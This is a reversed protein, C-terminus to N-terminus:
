PSLLWHTGIRVQLNAELFEILGPGYKNLFYVFGITREQPQGNPFAQSQARHFQRRLVGDKRKTAQIIKNHLKKLDTEMRAATSRASGELTPDIEVVTTALIDMQEAVLSSTTAIASEVTPPLQTVLLRNLVSEDRASLTEFQIQHRSLFRMTSSDLLTISPRTHVLPMPIGFEEYITRLQGFYALESPGAVYCVTPFLTDQVLPRLLVNPSFREPSSRAVDILETSNVLQSDIQFGDKHCHVAQRGNEIDFLALTGLQPSIQAHYGKAQLAAGAEAALNVTRGPHEIERTFLESVLPKSAPDSADYVVLGAPGLTMELWQGFAEAMGNGPRYTDRLNALVNKSFETEPLTRELSDVAGAVSDKLLVNGVPGVNKDGLLGLQVSALDLAADLTNCTRVEEWDHDESDIWFVAIAPAGHSEVERVLRLAGIAKLLTFLPGGFLSAQQGTVVAVTKPDALKAAAVRAAKPAGRRKQQDALLAAVAANNRPHTQARKIAAQWADSSAPNGAYFDALKEYAFAYDAALQSTWSFRRIDIPITSTRIPTGSQNPV